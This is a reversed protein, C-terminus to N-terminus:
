VAQQKADACGIRGSENRYCAQQEADRQECTIDWRPSRHAYIRHHRKSVLSSHYTILFPPGEARWKDSTVEQPTTFPFGAAPCESRAAFAPFFGPNVSTAIRVRASPM